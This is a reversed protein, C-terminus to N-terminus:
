AAEATYVPYDTYGKEPPVTFYFTSRDYKTLPIGDALKKPLDPNAIFWRGFCVLDTAGSELKPVANEWNFCGTSLFLVGGKQLIDRLPLLSISTEKDDNVLSDIKQKEDLVEDFRPEVRNRIDIRAELRHLEDRM